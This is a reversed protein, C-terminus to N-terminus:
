HVYIGEPVIIQGILQHEDNYLKINDNVSLKVDPLTFLLTSKYYASQKLNTVQQRISTGVLKDNIYLYYDEPVAGKVYSSLYIIEVAQATNYETIDFDLLAKGGLVTLNLMANTVALRANETYKGDKNILVTVIDNANLDLTNTTINVTNGTVSYYGSTVTGHNVSAVSRDNVRIDYSQQQFDEKQLTFAIKPTATTVSTDLDVVNTSVDLKLGSVDGDPVPTVDDPEILNKVINGLTHEPTDGSIDWIIAGGYGQQDIFNVKTTISQEDDYTYFEKTKANYLYPVQSENDWYRTYNSDKAMKQLTYFPSTGTFQGEDDWEGHVTASGPAFLGPLGKVVETPEVEGWARSYYPLGMVLKNKAIGWAQNYEQMASSANLKLDTDKSNAYLPSNHGTIPDFAGHIDYTM